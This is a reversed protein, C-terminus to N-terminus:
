KFTFEDKHRQKFLEFVAELVGEEEIGAYVEEDPNEGEEVQLILLEDPEEEELPLLVIYQKGQYDILDLLEFEAGEGKENELTIISNFEEM